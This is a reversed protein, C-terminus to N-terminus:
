AEKPHLGDLGENGAEAEARADRQIEASIRQADEFTFAEQPPAWDLQVEKRRRRVSARGDSDSGRASVRAHKRRM